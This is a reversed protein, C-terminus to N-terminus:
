QIPRPEPLNLVWGGGWPIEQVVALDQATWGWKQDTSYTTADFPLLACLDSVTAYPYTQAVTMLDNKLKTAGDRTSFARGQFLDRKVSTSKPPDPKKASAGGNFYSSYSIFNGSNPSPSSSSSREGLLWMQVGGTVSDVIIKIIGPIIIDKKVDDAVDTIDRKFLIKALRQSLPPKAKRVGAPNQGKLNQLFAARDTSETKQMERKRQDEISNTPYDPMEM